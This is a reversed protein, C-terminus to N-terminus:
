CRTDNGATKNHSMQLNSQIPDTTNPLIECFVAWGDREREKEEMKKHDSHNQELPQPPVSPHLHDKPLPPDLRLTVTNHMLLFPTKLPLTM